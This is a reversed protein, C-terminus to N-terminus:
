TVLKDNVEQISIHAEVKDGPNFKLGEYSSLFGSDGAQLATSCIIAMSMVLGAKKFHKM